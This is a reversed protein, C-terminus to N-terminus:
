KAALIGCVIVILACVVTVPTLISLDRTFVVTFVIAWAAYTVDLAMAKSAGVKTIAKYYFLYSLTACLGAAAIFAILTAWSVPQGIGPMKRKKLDCLM